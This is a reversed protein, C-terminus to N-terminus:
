AALTWGREVAQARGHEVLWTLHSRIQLAALGHAAAPLGEYVESVLEGPRAVGLRGLAREIAETRAHRHALYGDLVGVGEALPDGHAPLLWSPREDRARALSALYTGLHGDRPDILITGVGAVLDGAIMVGSERHLFVLHGPAHGPTFLPALRVEGADLVSEDLHENVTLSDALLEATIAHAAIPVHQGRAEFVAQLARAGAVHDHHHHTLVIREVTRGRVAQEDLWAVLRAQEDAYPSAPDFLTLRDHGVVWTNTHTAPPLTPTRLAVRDFGPPLVEGM